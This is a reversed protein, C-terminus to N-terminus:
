IRAGSIGDTLRGSRILIRLRAGPCETPTAASHPKVMLSNGTWDVAWRIYSRLRSVIAATVPDSPGVLVLIALTGVNHGLQAAPTYQAGRGVYIRPPNGDSGNGMIHNYGIDSWRREPGIHFTQMAKIAAREEAPTNVNRWTSPTTGPWHIFLEHISSPSRRSVPGRRPHPKWLKRELITLDSM